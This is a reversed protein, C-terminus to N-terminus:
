FRPEGPLDPLVASSVIHAFLPDRTAFEKGACSQTHSCNRARLQHGFGGSLCMRMMGFGSSRGRRVHVRIAFPMACEEIIGICLRHRREGFTHHRTRRALRSRAISTHEIVDIQREGASIGVQLIEVPTPERLEVRIAALSIVLRKDAERRRLLVLHYPHQLRALGAFEIPGCRLRKEVSDARV